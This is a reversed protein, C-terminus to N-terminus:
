ILFVGFVWELLVLKLPCGFESKPLMSRGYPAVETGCRPILIPKPV